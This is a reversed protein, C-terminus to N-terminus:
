LPWAAGLVGVGKWEELKDFVRFGVARLGSNL